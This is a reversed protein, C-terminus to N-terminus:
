LSKLQFLLEHKVDGNIVVELKHQGPYHTRTSMQKFSLKKKLDYQGESYNKESILFSKMTYTNNKKLYYIYISVRLYKKTEIKLSVNVNSSFGIQAEDISFSTVEVGESSDLGWISLAKKNGKKLLTRLGHKLIWDTKENTGYWKKALDIVLDPNIKSIDNLNNAVSKRVFLSDDEKLQDLIDVIRDIYDDEYLIAVKKGWPLKPRCAESAFRRINAEDNFSLNKLYDMVKDPQENLFYRIAFESSGYQTVQGLAELSTDFHERGYVDIFEAFVLADFDDFYQATDIIIPLVELYDLDFCDGISEACFRLKEKLEMEKFYESTLKKIFKNKDFMDSHSLYGALKIVFTEGFYIDKLAEM